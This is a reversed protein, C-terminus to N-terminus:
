GAVLTAIGLGIFLVFAARRAWHLPIREMLWAGAWIVPVNALLM